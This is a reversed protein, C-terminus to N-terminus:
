TSPTAGASDADSEAALAVLDPLLVPGTLPIMGSLREPSLVEAVKEPTM